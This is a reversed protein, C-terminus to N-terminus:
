LNYELAVRQPATREIGRWVYEDVLADDRREELTHARYAARVRLPRAGHRSTRPAVKPAPLREEDLLVQPREQMKAIREDAQAIEHYRRRIEPNAQAEHANQQARARAQELWNASM